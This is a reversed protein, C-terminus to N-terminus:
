YAVACVKKDDLVPLTISGDATFLYDNFIDEMPPIYYKGNLLKITTEKLRYTYYGCTYCACKMFHTCICMKDKIPFKEGKQNVPAKDYAEKYACYGKDDMLYGLSECNPKTNSALSPSNKLMRMLYGTPSSCNVEIDSEEAQLYAQKAEEPLGCEKAITFRTAVQVASAGLEMYDVADKGTFIGGGPIVPIKIGEEKLYDLVEKLITKLDFNKWDLDFGLHGGALPGEVVIYDPLRDVRKASRIFIKLARVSSVITGLLVDRFRPHDEFLKLSSNHLGASLTIGDIGGDLAGCIRAKLTTLSDGMTLKEMINIFIDGNGIKKSMVNHVYRKSAEYTENYDWKAFNVLGSRVKEVFQQRKKTQFHTGLRKDCVYPCMADSIHGIGGLKAAGLALEETSIDVGMGGIMIPKFIKNKIILVYDNLIKM